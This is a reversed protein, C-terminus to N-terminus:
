QNSVQGNLADRNEEFAQFVRGSIPSAKDGTVFRDLRERADILMWAAVSGLQQDYTALVRELIGGLLVDVRSIKDRHSIELADALGSEAELYVHVPLEGFGAEYFFYSFYVARLLESLLHSYGDDTRCVALALHNALSIDTGVERPLPLLM